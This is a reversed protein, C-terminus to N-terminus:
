TKITENSKKNFELLDQEDDIDNLLKLLSYSLKLEICKEITASLVSNTSWQINEFLESHNMKIGILYYGGDEAPGIVIDSSNLVKFADEIIEADIYPCDTGIIVAKQYGKNLILDFANRMREGLHNGTQLEKSFGKKWLDDEEKFESYFVFKDLDLDQTSKFTHQLLKHYVVLAAENGITAALRTKVKGAVPNKAFILLAHKNM